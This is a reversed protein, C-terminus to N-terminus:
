LGLLCPIVCLSCRLPQLPHTRLLWFRLKGIVVNIYQSGSLQLHMQRTCIKQLLSSTVRYHWAHSFMYGSSPLGPFVHLGVIGLAPFCTVRRHWARSFMYCSSVLRPFVHLVVIGLAPFCTVRRYWARSFMYCICLAPFCTVSGFQHWSKIFWDNMMMMM